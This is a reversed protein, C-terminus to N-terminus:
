VPWEQNMAEDFIDALLVFETGATGWGDQLTQRERIELNASFRWHTIGVLEPGSYMDVFRCEYPQLGMPTRLVANFWESGDVIDYRFWSEFITAEQQTLLWSVSAISPVSTYKRRQRARGSQLESRMLPSVHNLGYGNRLPRPLGAPFDITAM